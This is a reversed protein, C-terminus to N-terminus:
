LLMFTKSNWSVILILWSPLRMIFAKLAKEGKKTKLLERANMGNFKSFPTKLWQKGANEGLITIVANVIDQPIGDIQVEVNEFLQSFGKWDGENLENAFFDIMDM